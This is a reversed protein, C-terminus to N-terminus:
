RWPTAAHFWLILAFFWLSRNYEAFVEFFQDPTFPLNSTM